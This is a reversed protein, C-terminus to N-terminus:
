ELIEPHVHIVVKDIKDLSEIDKELHNALKHSNYTSMNGDVAITFVVFYKYGIPTSYLNYCNKIEPHEKVHKMIIKKTEEDLSVDM